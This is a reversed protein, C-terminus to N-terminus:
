FDPPIYRSLDLDFQKVFPIIPSISESLPEKQWAEHIAVAAGLPSARKNEAIFLQWDPLFAQLFEKFVENKLFGGSLYLRKTDGCVLEISLKQLYTLDLMMKYYAAEFSDFKSFDTQPANLDPFPGTGKMTQPYFATNESSNIIAEEFLGKEIRIDQYYGKRKNFYSELKKAQEDLENGLFLRSAAIKRDKDLLYYLCDQFYKEESLIGKFFPNLTINWTGTSLLVFSKQTTKVFPLLAASSDHIGIGIAVEKGSLDIRDVTNASEANPLLYALGKDKVWHHYEKTNFDWLGTHCGISTLDAHKKGSFLFNGYQPLHLSSQVAKFLDPKKEKLWFLQIGSNLMNLVPSGTTISFQSKGGFINYFRNLFSSDLPKLYDYLPTVPKGKNDIHVLSAGHASFNIAKLNLNQDALTDHLQNKMWQSIAALDECNDGDEDKIDPITTTVEKVVKYQPDFLFFKKHTRGLDFIAIVPHM